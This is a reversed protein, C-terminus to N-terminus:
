ACSRPDSPPDGPPEGHDGDPQDAQAIAQWSDESLVRASDLVVLLGGDRAGIASVSDHSAGRLLPPLASLTDHAIPRIDIVDDIVVAIRHDAARVVVVRADGGAPTGLLKRADVVPVPEGRIVALGEIFALAAIASRGIPEVAVTRMTEIVQEIPFACAIGGVRTVLM